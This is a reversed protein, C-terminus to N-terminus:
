IANFYDAFKNYVYQKKQELSGYKPSYMNNVFEAFEFYDKSCDSFQDFTEYVAKELSNLDNAKSLRIKL